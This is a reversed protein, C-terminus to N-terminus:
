YRYDLKAHYIDLLAHVIFRSTLLLLYLRYRADEKAFSRLTENQNTVRVRVRRLAVYDLM